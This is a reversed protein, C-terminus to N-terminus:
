RHQHCGRREQSAVSHNARDGDCSGSDADGEDHCARRQSSEVKDKELGKQLRRGLRRRRSRLHGREKKSSVNADDRRDAVAEQEDRKVGAHKAETPETSLPMLDRDTKRMM